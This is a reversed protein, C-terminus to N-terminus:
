KEFCIAGLIEHPLMEVHQRHGTEALHYFTYFSHCIQSFIQKLDNLLDPIM